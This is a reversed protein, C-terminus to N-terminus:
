GHDYGSVVIRGSNSSLNVIRASLLELSCLCQLCKSLHGSHDDGAVVPRDSICIDGSSPLFQLKIILRRCHYEDNNVNNVM